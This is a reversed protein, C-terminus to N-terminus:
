GMEMLELEETEAGVKSELVCAILKVSALEVPVVPLAVIITGVASIPLFKVTETSPWLTFGLDVEFEASVVM